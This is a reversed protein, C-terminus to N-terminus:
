CRMTYKGMVRKSAVRAGVKKGDHERSLFKKVKLCNEASICLTSAEIQNLKHMSGKSVAQAEDFPGANSYPMRLGLCKIKRIPPRNSLTSGARAKRTRHEVVVQNPSLGHSNIPVKSRKHIDPKVDKRSSFSPQCSRSTKQFVKNIMSLEEPKLLGQCTFFASNWDLSKRLESRRREEVPSMKGRKITSANDFG